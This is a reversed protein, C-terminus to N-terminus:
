SISSSVTITEAKVDSYVISDYTSIKVQGPQPFTKEVKGGPGVFGCGSVEGYTFSFTLGTNTKNVIKM